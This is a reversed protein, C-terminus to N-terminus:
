CPRWIIRICDLTQVSHVRRPEDHNMLNEAATTSLANPILSSHSIYSPRAEVALHPILELQLIILNQPNLM